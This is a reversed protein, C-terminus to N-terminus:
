LNALTKSLKCFMTVSQIHENGRQNSYVSNLLHKEAYIYLQNIILMSINDIITTKYNFPSKRLLFNTYISFSVCIKENISNLTTQICDSLYKRKLNTKHGVVQKCYKIFM